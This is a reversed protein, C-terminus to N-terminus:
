LHPLVREGFARIQQPGTFNIALLALGHVRQRRQLEVIMEDPTGVLAIPHTLFDAPTMGFMGSMREAFARTEAASDTLAFNFITSAFRIGRPDRGAGAAAARVRALKAPLATDTFRRVEDLTTTGAAGIKPVMHILRGMRRRATQDHRVQGGGVQIAFEM